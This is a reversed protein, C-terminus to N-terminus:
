NTRHGAAVSLVVVRPQIPPYRPIPTPDGAIGAAFRPNATRLDTIEPTTNCTPIALRYLGRGDSLILKTWDSIIERGGQLDAAPRLGAPQSGREIM